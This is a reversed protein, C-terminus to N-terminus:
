SGSRLPTEGDRQAWRGPLEMAEQPDLDLLRAHLEAVRAAVVAPDTPGDWRRSHSATHTHWLRLGRHRCWDGLQKDAVGLAAATAKRSLGSAALRM